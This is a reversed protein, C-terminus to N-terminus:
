SIGCGGREVVVNLATTPVRMEQADTNQSEHNPRKEGKDCDEQEDATKRKTKV